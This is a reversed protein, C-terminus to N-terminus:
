KVELLREPGIRMKDVRGTSPDIAEQELGGMVQVYLRIKDGGERPIIMSSGNNSHIATRNRIDPFDTDPFFDVVGWTYETQSGEM